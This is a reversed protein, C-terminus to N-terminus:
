TATRRSKLRWTCNYRKKKEKKKVAKKTLVNPFRDYDHRAEADSPIIPEELGPAVARNQMIPLGRARNEQRFRTHCKRLVRSPIKV